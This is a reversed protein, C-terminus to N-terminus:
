SSFLCPITSSTLLHRTVGGFIWESLRTRGYAGAVILDANHDNALELLIHGDDEGAVTEIQRDLTVRHRKLYGTLDSVQADIATSSFAQPNALAIAVKEARKLLPLADRVARRAEPTDKWAILMRSSNLRTVDRPLVLVPRGAGLIVTGPDYTRYIDGSVLDRGIVLLDTARAEAVLVERPFHPTSRWEAECGSKEAVQRFHEGLKQLLQAIAEQRASETSSIPPLPESKSLPWAGVGILVSNFRAALNASARIRNASSDDFDVYVMISTLSMAEAGTWRRCYEADGGTHSQNRELLAASPQDGTKLGTLFTVERAGFWFRM